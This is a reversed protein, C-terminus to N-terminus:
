RSRVHDVFARAVHDRDEILTSTTISNFGNGNSYFTQDDVLVTQGLVVLRQPNAGPPISSPTGRAEILAKIRQATGNIGDDNVTGVVKVVMGNDLQLLATKPTDDISINAATDEFRVGNVITSGKTMVGTSFVTGGGGGPPTTAGTGGTGGGGGCAALVSLAFAALLAARSSELLTEM